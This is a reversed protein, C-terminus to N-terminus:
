KHMKLLRNFNKWLKRSQKRISQQNNLEKMTYDAKYIYSLYNGWNYEKSKLYKTKDTKSPRYILKRKAGRYTFRKFLRSKFIKKDPNKSYKALSSSKKFSKIMSRYFKSFGASKVLVKQGDFSFGLYELTRNFNPVKTKEDIEFGQFKEDIIEFRYVKTKKPQIELNSVNKDAITERITNIIEDEYQQECVVVLDDSYRQYFGSKSKLKDFIIQDFDLMYVNALTASIPSGQPIGVMNNKSVILNLNNKIFENKKCYAVAGKEKFYQTKEIEVRKFKTKKSNNPIGREVIMTRHYSNFLQEGEIYKIRTLTKFINYHDLPLTCENLIKSWKRKLIKHDLNDFFSTVDAVIVSLKKSENRKIFEFTTKAFDINCKNNKSDKSLTIKRYAVISENFNKNEIHKEYADVLLSNYYSFVLSDIHSAFYINRHKKDKIRYRRKTETKDTRLKDPRFKRQSICKHIFPLFSHTRIKNKNNVYEKVWEYDSITIPLGIHPYKKLKFWNETEM